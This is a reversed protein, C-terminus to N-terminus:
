GNALNMRRLMEDFRANGRLPGLRPEVKVWMMREERVEICKELAALAEDFRGLEGYNEALAFLAKTDTKALIELQKLREDRKETQGTRHHSTVLLSLWAFEQSNKATLEKESIEIVREYQGLHFSFTAVGRMGRRYEKNFNMNEDAQALAEKYEGRGELTTLYGSKVDISLPDIEM